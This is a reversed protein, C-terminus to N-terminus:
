LVELVVTIEVRIYVDERTSVCAGKRNSFGKYTYYLVCLSNSGKFIFKMKFM